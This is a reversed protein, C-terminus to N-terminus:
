DCAFVKRGVNQQVRNGDVSYGFKVDSLWYRSADKKTFFFVSM